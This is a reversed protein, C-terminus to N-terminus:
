GECLTQPAPGKWQARAYGDRLENGERDVERRAQVRGRHAYPIRGSPRHCLAIPRAARAAPSRNAESSPVARLGSANEGFPGVGGCKPRGPGRSDSETASRSINREPMGRIQVPELQRIDRRDIKFVLIGPWNPM